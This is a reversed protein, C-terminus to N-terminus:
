DAGTSQTSVPSNSENIVNIVNQSQTEHNRTENVSLEFVGPSAPASFAARRQSRSLKLIYKSSYREDPPYLMLKLSTVRIILLVFVVYGFLSTLMFIALTKPTSAFFPFFYDGIGITTITMYGLWTYERFPLIDKALESGGEDAIGKHVLFGTLIIMVWLSVFLFICIFSERMKSIKIRRSQYFDEIIDSFVTASNSTIGVFLWVSLFGATYVLVRSVYTVIPPNGYAVTTLITLWFMTGGAYRPGCGKNGSAESLAKEVAEENTYHSSSSLTQNVNMNFSMSWTQFTYLAHKIWVGVLEYGPVNIDSADPCDTWDFTLYGGGSNTFTPPEFLGKETVFPLLESKPFMINLPEEMCQNMFITIQTLNTSIFDYSQAYQSLCSSQFDLVQRKSIEAEKNEAIFERYLGAIAENNAAMEGRPSKDITREVIGIGWMGESEAKAVFYGFFVSLFMLLLTPVLVSKMFLYTRPFHKIAFLRQKGYPQSSFSCSECDVDEDEEREELCSSENRRLQDKFRKQAKQIRRETTRFVEKVDSRIHRVSM